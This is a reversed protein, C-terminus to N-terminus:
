SETTPRESPNQARSNLSSVCQTNSLDKLKEERNNSIQITKSKLVRTNMTNDIDNPNPDIIRRQNLSIRRQNLSARRRLKRQQGDVM